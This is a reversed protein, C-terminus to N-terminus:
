DNNNLQKIYKYIYNLPHSHYEPNITCVPHPLAFSLVIKERNTIRSSNIWFVMALWQLLGTVMALNSLLLEFALM